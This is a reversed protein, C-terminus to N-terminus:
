KKLAETITKTHSKPLSMIFYLAAIIFKLQEMNRSDEIIKVIKLQIEKFKTDMTIDRPTHTGYINMVLKIINLGRSM